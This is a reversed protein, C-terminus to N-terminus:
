PHARRIFSVGEEIDSLNQCEVIMPKSYLLEGASQFLEVFGVTGRGPPLHEDYSGLNDHVHVTDILDVMMLLFDDVKGLTNAHGIDLTFGCGLDYLLSFIQEPYGAILHDASQHDNEITFRIGADEAHSIVKTLSRVAGERARGTLEVPYNRSLRGIHSVVFRADVDAAFEVAGILSKVSAERIDPNLAVPSVDIYPAHVSYRFDYSKLLDRVAEMKATDGRAILLEPVDMKLEVFEVKLESAFELLEMISMNLIPHDAIGIAM